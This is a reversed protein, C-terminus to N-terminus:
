RSAAEVRIPLATRWAGTRQSVDLQLLGAAAPRYEFDMTEGPGALFEAVRTTQRHLPLEAGDKALARWQETRDRNKLAVRVTWDPVIHIIRL